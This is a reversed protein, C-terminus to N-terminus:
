SGDRGPGSLEGPRQGLRTKVAKFLLCGRLIEAIDAGGDIVVAKFPHQHGKRGLARGLGQAFHNGLRPKGLQANGFGLFVGM